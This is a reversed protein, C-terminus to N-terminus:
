LSESILVSVQPHGCYNLNVTNITFHLNESKSLLFDLNIILDSNTTNAATTIRWSLISFRRSLSCM